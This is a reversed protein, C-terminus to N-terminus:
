RLRPTLKATSVVRELRPLVQDAFGFGSPILDVQHKNSHVAGFSTDCAYPIPRRPSTMENRIGVHPATVGPTYDIGGFRESRRIHGVEIVVGSVTRAEDQHCVCTDYHPLRLWHWFPDSHSGAWLAARRSTPLCQGHTVQRSRSMHGRKRKTRASGEPVPVERSRDGPGGSVARESYSVM